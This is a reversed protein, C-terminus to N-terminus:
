LRFLERAARAHRGDSDHGLQELPDRLLRETLHTLAREVEARQSDDLTPARQWLRELEKMQAERARIALAQATVRQREDSLWQEYEAVTGEILADLRALVRATVRTDGLPDLLDDITISRNGLLRALARDLAPPSSIDVLWAGSEALASAAAPSLPWNGALAVVVGGLESLLEHGPVFETHAIGFQKALARSTEKTRSSVTVTAGRALLTGVASRGITGTGVVHLRAGEV